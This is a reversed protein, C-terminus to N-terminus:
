VELYDYQISVGVKNRAAANIAMALQEEATLDHDLKSLTYMVANAEDEGCGVACFDDFEFISFDDQMIFLRGKYGFVFTGGQKDTAFGDGELLAKISDIFVKYIYHDETQSNLKEPQKWAFEILQGMRFSTTYGFVFDGNKFIKPKTTILKTYGNSSLKDGAIHIKGDEVKAVICTM